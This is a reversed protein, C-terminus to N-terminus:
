PALALFASLGEGGISVLAKRHLVGTRPVPHLKLGPAPAAVHVIGLRAEDFQVIFM